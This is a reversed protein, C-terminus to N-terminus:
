PEPQRRRVFGGGKTVEGDASIALVREATTSDIFRMSVTANAKTM